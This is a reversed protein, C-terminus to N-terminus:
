NLIKATELKEKEQGIKIGKEQGIEIGKEKGIERAAQLSNEKGMVWLKHDWTHRPVFNLPM